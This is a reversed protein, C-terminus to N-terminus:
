TIDATDETSAVMRGVVLAARYVLVELLLGIWWEDLFRCERGCRLCVKCVWDPTVYDCIVLCLEEAGRRMNIIFEV